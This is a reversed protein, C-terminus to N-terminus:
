EINKIYAWIHVWILVMYPGINFGAIVYVNLIRSCFLLDWITSGILIQYINFLRFLYCIWYNIIVFINVTVQNFSKNPTSVWHTNTHWNKIISEVLYLRGIQMDHSTRWFLFSFFFVDCSTRKSAGGSQLWREM